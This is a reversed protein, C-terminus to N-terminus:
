PIQRRRSKVKIYASSVILIMLDSIVACMAIKARDSTAKASGGPFSPACSGVSLFFDKMRPWAFAEGDFVWPPLGTRSDRGGPDTRPTSLLPCGERSLKLVPWFCGHSRTALGEYRDFVDKPSGNIRM